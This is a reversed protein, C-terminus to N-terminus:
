LKADCDNIWPREVGNWLPASKENKAAQGAWLAEPLRTLLSSELAIQAGGPLLRAPQNATDLFRGALRAPEKAAAFLCGVLSARWETAEFYPRAAAAPRGAGLLFCGALKTPHGAGEAFCRAAAARGKTTGFLCRAARAPRSKILSIPRVLSTRRKTSPAVGGAVAARCFKSLLDPVAGSTAGGTAGAIVRVAAGMEGSPGDRVGAVGAVHEPSAAFVDEPPAIDVDGQAV